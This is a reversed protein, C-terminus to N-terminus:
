LQVYMTHLAIGFLVSILIGTAVEMVGRRQKWIPHHRERAILLRPLVCV